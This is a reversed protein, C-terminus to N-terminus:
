WRSYMLVKHDEATKPVENWIYQTIFPIFPHLMKLYEKLVYVMTLVVEQRIKADPESIIAGSERDKVTNIFPKSEEILVDCFTKWFEEYLTETAYGFEYADVNKTVKSKVQKIHEVLKISFENSVKEADFNAPEVGEANTLVFRSANWIKNMFQKFNKLKDYTIAYNGGAKNQYFYVMRVADTGYESVIKDMDIMNGKSKSMKQGDTGLVLGTLFLNEFPIQKDHFYTFMMMRSDWNELIDHASVLVKTPFFTDKLNHAQLTAYVWQGSSFWTDLVNEDQHWESTNLELNYTTLDKQPEFVFTIKELNDHPKNVIDKYDRDKLKNELTRLVGGHTVILVKNGQYKTKIEEFARLIRSEFNPITEINAKEPHNDVLDYIDNAFEPFKKIAEARTLGEFDGFNKERLNSDKIIKSKDFGIKDAIIEATQIARNLDSCIIYDYCETSEFNRAQEKGKETLDTNTHGGFRKEVNAITEGHRIVDIITSDPNHLQVRLHNPNDYELPIWDQNQRKERKMQIMYLEGPGEKRGEVPYEEFGFKLYFEKLNAKEPTAIHIELKDGFDDLVKYMLLKGVGQKQYQKSVYINLWHIRDTDRINELDIWGIVEGDKEAIFVINNEDIIMDQYEKIKELDDSKRGYKNAIVEATVGREEDIFSQMWGQVDIEHMISADKLEAKRITIDSHTYFPKTLRILERVQGNEDIEEKIEGHYWVPLRYGWWLSRSIAWDRLNEMWHNFKDVMNEPHITVQGNKVMEIAAQKINNEPTDYKLYWQSSLIPEILAGTRESKNISQKISEEKILYGENKLDEIILDKVKTYKQNRYKEPVYDSVLMLNGDIINRATISKNPNEKNWELMTQYDDQSHAPTIKLAGTGFDTLVKYNTIIPIKINTLPIIVEKGVIDKYRPDSPNVAVATDGFMTEPRTTAVTVSKSSDDAFKYQLYYLKGDREERVMQNDAVATRAKPDWNVIRVGKYIMGAKYMEVFTNLVTDVVRPDLTFINRDYDASLGIHKEDNMAIEMNKKFFEMMEAYFDERTMDFKNRGQKELVDRIFVGEGELGAHDKGPLVLVKKGQMRAYRAMADQYAYGSINGIHPRAYANPPPCILAWPERPDAKMEEVSMLKDTTPNYEPKHYGNNLWLDLIIKEYETPNYPGQPLSM